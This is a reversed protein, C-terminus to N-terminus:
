VRDWRSHPEALHMRPHLKGCERHSLRISSYLQLSFHELVIIARGAEDSEDNLKQFFPTLQAVRAHLKRSSRVQPRM